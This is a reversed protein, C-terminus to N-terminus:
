EAKARMEEQKLTRAAAVFWASQDVVGGAIPPLGNHFLDILEITDIMSRCEDQPCGEVRVQGSDSCEDCGSGYCSPCEIDIPEAPTSM